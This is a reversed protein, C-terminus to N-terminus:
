VHKGEEAKLQYRTYRRISKTYRNPKKFTEILEYGAKQAVRQSASNEEDIVLELKRLSLESIANKSIALLAETMLGRGWYKKNLVYGIESPDGKDFKVFDISGIMKQNDKLVIAWKGLPEKMFSYVLGHETDAKSDHPPFIFKLNEADSAYEHM